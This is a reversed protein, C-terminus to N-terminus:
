LRSVRVGYARYRDKFLRLMEERLAICFVEGQDVWTSRSDRVNAAAVMTVDESIQGALRASIRGRGKARIPMGVLMTCSYSYTSILHHHEVFSLTATAEQWGGGEEKGDDPRVQQFVYADSIAETAEGVQEEALAEQAENAPEDDVSAPAAPPEPAQLNQLCAPAFSCSLAVLLGAVIRISQM